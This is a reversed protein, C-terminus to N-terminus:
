LIVTVLIHGIILTIAARGFILLARQEVSLTQSVGVVLTSRLLAALVRFKNFNAPTGWVRSCIEPTLLGFNVMNHPWTFSTDNNLLNKESQRYMGQSRLYLGVFKHSPALIAIKQTRYKEALRTCCMESMCELNASLGCWTHFYPIFMWDRVASILRPFFFSILLLVLLYFDCTLFIIAQGIAYPPWLWPEIQSIEIALKLLPDCLQVQWRM